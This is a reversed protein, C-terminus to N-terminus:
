QSDQVQMYLSEKLVESCIYESVKAYNFCEINDSNAHLSIAEVAFHM